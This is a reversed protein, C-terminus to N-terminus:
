NMRLARVPDIALARRAPIYSAVISMLALGAAAGAFTPLDFPAIGFLLTAILQTLAFACTAGVVVGISTSRIARALVLRLVDRRSAGLATRIGIERTRQGVGYATVSYLGILALLLAVASFATFLVADFRPRGLSASLVDEMRRMQSVPLDADIARVQERVTRAVLLPDGSTRVLVTLASQPEQTHSLYIEAEPRAALSAHRVDGVVGVVTIWPSFLLRVRKGIAEQGPWFREAMTENIVAVPQAQPDDFGRPFPQQEFWRILPVAHRADSPAFTRGRTLPIEMTRFYDGAVTRLSARIEDGRGPPPSGEITIGMRNDGPLLPLNSVAGVSRVQDLGSLRTRLDEFVARRQEPRAYRSAPLSLPVALVNQVNFGPDVRSLRHFSQILLGAGVLLTM